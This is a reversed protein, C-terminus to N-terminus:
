RIVDLIWKYVWGSIFLGLGFVFLGISYDVLGFILGMLGVMRVVPSELMFLLQEYWTIIPVVYGLQELKTTLDTTSPETLTSGDPFVLTPVSENGHNLDRVIQRTGQVRYIDVYDFEVKAQQLMYRVPAVMGCAPHGYLITKDTPSTLNKASCM